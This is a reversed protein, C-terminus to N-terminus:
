EGEAEGGEEPWGELVVEEGVIEFGVSVGEREPVDVVVEYTGPWLVLQGKEDARAVAGLLVEIEVEGSGGEAEVEALKGYGVLRKRPYPAPGADATKVFALVTFPSAVAGTNTVQVTFSMLPALAPRAADPGGALLTATDFVDGVESSSPSVSLSFNTYHLGFGFDVVAKRGEEVDSEGSGAFFQYTRGPNGDGGDGEGAAAALGMETMEVLEVYGAPYQTVPLRGAPARKGTLLDVLAEGAAQGPYGAWLLANVAEDGALLTSSDVQGGGYVAVIVPKGTARLQALLELQNGPWAIATRDHSEAEISNDIGGAFLILDAADAAALARAFQSTDTSDIATGPAHTVSAFGASEAASLPSSLFPARGFYNGQLQQTANAYPGILALNIEAPPSPLPLIGDNKLLVTGAVAAEYALSQAHETNVDSWSLARYPQAAADDFYGLNVLSSYLRALARDLDAEEVLGAELASPMYEAYDSGCDLDTGAKLALAVAETGNAAYEHHEWIDRVAECDGTVWRDTGNWGWHERLITQLLYPSACSPKGNVSNYSCMISAVNSDRVCTKFPPMYYDTMDRPTVLADFNHRNVGDMTGELDYATYHKCCAAVKKYPSTEDRTGELGALLQAVYRQLHYPDEGPTEQGRGWRPDKFPNINPTWFDLGARGANSFARAETSVVSAIEYVLGDDFAAGIGIPQPFSTASDFEEGERAFEVGPSHAVGHLAENWWNYAPLGLPESGPAENNINAIKEEITLAALLGAVREPTPLTSNCIPNTSLPPSTCDPYSILALSPPLLPLSLLLTPKSLLPM